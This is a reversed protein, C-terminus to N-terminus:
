QRHLEEDVKEEWYDRIAPSKSAVQGSGFNESQSDDGPRGYATGQGTAPKEAGVSSAPRPEVELTRRRSTKVVDYKIEPHPRKSGATVGTVHSGTKSDQVSAFSALTPEQTQTPTTGARSTADATFESPHPVRQANIRAISDRSAKGTYGSLTEVSAKTRKKFPKDM